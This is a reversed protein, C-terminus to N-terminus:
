YFLNHGCWSVIYFLQTHHIFLCLLLLSVPTFGKCWTSKQIDNERIPQPFIRLGVWFDFFYLSMWFRCIWKLRYWSFRLLPLNQSFNVFFFFFFWYNKTWLFKRFKTQQLIVAVLFNYHVNQLNEFTFRVFCPTTPPNFPLNYWWNCFCKM